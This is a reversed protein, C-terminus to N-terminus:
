SMLANKTFHAKKVGLFYVTIFSAAAVLLKTGGDQIM